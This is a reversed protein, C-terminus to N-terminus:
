FQIVYFAEYNENRITEKSMLLLIFHVLSVTCSPVETSKFWTVRKELSKAWLGESDGLTPRIIYDYKIVGLFRM